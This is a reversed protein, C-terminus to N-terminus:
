GGGCERIFRTSQARAQGEFLTAGEVLVLGSERAWSSFATREKYVWEVAWAATSRAAELLEPFPAPDGPEMGLATAQIVGAPAFAAVESATRPCRRSAALVERGRARAAAASTAAVGGSGLVLVPGAPLAGLAEDLAVADTNAHNWPAAPRRRYLTNLPGPLGLLAPLTEKLPATLSAGLLPLAELAERAEGTDGCLLPLYLLDKFGAQFAANHFAPGRSHLVPDGLVGCLGFDRHLKHCRWEMMRALPLQGPAVAPADDAAAYTFSGGWAFQMCRSALGKPGMLFASLFCGRDRAWALAPKVRANDALRSAWGVWKFADGEPLDALRAELDFVGQPVHVSRLLHIRTRWAAIGPPVPLDWELDLWLPRSEAAQVLRELRGAEDGEWAGGESARRCTVLCRRNLALIMGEPDEGPFLDLRIEPLAEPPLRKACALAEEWTPHSLPVFYAPPRTM